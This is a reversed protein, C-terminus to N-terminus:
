RGATEPMARLNSAHNALFLYYGTLTVGHRAAEPDFGLPSAMANDLRGGFDWAEAEIFAPVPYDEPVACYLQPEERRRFLNYAPEDSNM